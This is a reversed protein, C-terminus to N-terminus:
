RVADLTAAARELAQSLVALQQRARAKDKADIAENVGPLVVASYGTFEGPAFITHRYWPRHPLGAPNLLASEVQRLAQNFKGLDGSPTLQRRRVREAAEAFRAAAAQAQGLDIEGLEADAAKRSAAELYASVERAYTVYDYPLV